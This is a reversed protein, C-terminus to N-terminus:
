IGLRGAHAIKLGLKTYSESNVFTAAALKGEGFPWQQIDHVM